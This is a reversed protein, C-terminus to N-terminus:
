KAALAKVIAKAFKERTAPGRATVINGDVQCDAGTYTAGKLDSYASSTAKKGELVGANALIAPAICMACLIKNQEVAKKAIEHATSDEFYEVAGSGGVFVIADYDAVNIDTILIAPKVKAGLMGTATDLSSSAITVEAGQKELVSKPTGLEEDRFSQSAIIMVVKKGELQSKACGFILGVLAIVIIPKYKHTIM